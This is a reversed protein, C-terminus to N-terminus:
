MTVIHVDDSSLVPKANAESKTMSMEFKPLRVIGAAASFQSLIYSFILYFLQLLIYLACLSHFQTLVAPCDVEGGGWTTTSRRGVALGVMSLPPLATSGFFVCRKVM